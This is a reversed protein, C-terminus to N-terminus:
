IPFNEDRRGLDPRCVLAIESLPVAQRSMDVSILNQISILSSTLDRCLAGGRYAPQSAEMHVPRQSMSTAKKNKLKSERSSHNGVVSFALLSEIHVRM